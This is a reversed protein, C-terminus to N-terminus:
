VSLYLMCLFVAYMSLLAVFPFVKLRGGSDHCVESILAGVMGSILWVAVDFM